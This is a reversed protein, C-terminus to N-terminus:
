MTTPRHLSSHPDQSVTHIIICACFCKQSMVFTPPYGGICFKTPTKCLDGVDVDNEIKLFIKQFLELLVIRVSIKCKKKCLFTKLLKVFNENEESVRM